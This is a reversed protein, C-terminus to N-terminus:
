TPSCGISLGDIGGPLLRDIIILDWNDNLAQHL